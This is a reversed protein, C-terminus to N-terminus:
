SDTYRFRFNITLSPSNSAENSVYALYFHGTRNSADAATNNDYYVEYGSKSRKFYELKNQMKGNVDLTHFCDWLISFRTKTDKRFHSYVTPTSDEWLEAATPQTGNQEMDRFLVVRMVSSSANTNVDNNGLAKIQMVKIKEGVRADDGTGEAILTLSSVAATTSVGTDIKIDHTKYEVNRSSNIQKDVYKKVAPAVYSKRSRKKQKNYRKAM